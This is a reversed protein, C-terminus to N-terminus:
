ESWVRALGTAQFASGTPKELKLTVTQVRGNPKIGEIVGGTPEASPKRDAGAPAVRVHAGAKLKGVLEAGEPFRTVQLRDAEAEEVYGPMGEAIIRDRHVQKQEAQFKLLSAEDLFVEWCRRTKGQGVGHSKTRLKDGVQIDKFSVPEGQKWYRTDADTELIIGKTRVYSKDVNADTVELKGTPADISDVWYYEKHGNLFNMEDQIYTLWVWEDKENPHLRFIAREGVRYDQLDGLTAHHLLEAYPMVIFSQVQDNGENRFTGTRTKLDLSILEGWIRRMNDTPVIVKGPIIQMKPKDAAPPASAAPAAAPKPAADEAALLSSTFGLSLIAALSILCMPLRMPPFDKLFELSLNMCGREERAAEVYGGNHVSSRRRDVHSSCPGRTTALDSGSNKADQADKPKFIEACLSSLIWNTESIRM